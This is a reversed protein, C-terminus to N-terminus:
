RNSKLGFSNIDGRMPVSQLRSTLKLQSHSQSLGPCGIQQALAAKFVMPIISLFMRPSLMLLPMLIGIFDRHREERIRFLLTGQNLNLEDCAALIFALADYLCVQVQSASSRSCHELSIRCPTLAKGYLASHRKRALLAYSAAPRWTLNAGHATSRSGDDCLMVRLLLQHLFWAVIIDQEM